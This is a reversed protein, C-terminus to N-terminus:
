EARVTVRHWANNNYGKVNWTASVAAPQTTGTGDTARVVLTHDGPVLEVVAEWFTWAWRGERGSVRAETWQRGADPSVEVAAIPAGASGMAWGRVPLRGSRVIRNPTPDLIVANLPVESLAVGASVDRPDSPNIERQVRYARAQFYNESPKERLTIRGLWKVSRAGIWGPVVTRLPAGHIVPLPAGNLEDALLVEENLAKELDISGGFGFQRGHREVQDLGVFEVHHAQGGM